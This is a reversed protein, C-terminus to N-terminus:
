TGVSRLILFFAGEEKLIDTVCGTRPAICPKGFSMALVAAGSTLVRQYPLVYVDCANLHVQVDDDAVYGPLFKIRLDGDIALAIEKTISENIPRGAFM